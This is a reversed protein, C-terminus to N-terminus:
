SFRKLMESVDVNSIDHNVLAWKEMQFCREEYTPVEEKYFIWVPIKEQVETVLKYAEERTHIVKEAELIKNEVRPLYFEYTEVKNFTVCPQLIEVLATWKHKIAEALIQALWKQDGTFARAVFTVWMTLAVALWNVSEELSWFPTSSSFTWKKATPSTQGKTLGYVWNNEIMITIDLNRRFCHAFHWMWIWLWDWDGCNVVVTLDKNAIKVWKAVPIARGHLTCMWYTNVWYPMLSGCGIWAVLCINEPPLQLDAFAMKLSTLIAFDWCGACWSAAEKTGYDKTTYTKNETM